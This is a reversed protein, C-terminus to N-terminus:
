KDLQSEEKIPSALFDACGETVERLRQDLGSRFDHKENIYRELSEKAQKHLRMLGFLGETTLYLQCIGAVKHEKGERKAKAMAKQILDNM